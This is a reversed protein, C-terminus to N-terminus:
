ARKHTAKAFHAAHAADYAQRDSSIAPDYKKKIPIDRLETEPNIAWAERLRRQRDRDEEMRQEIERDSMATIGDPQNAPDETLDFGASPARQPTTMTDVSRVTEIRSLAERERIYANIQSLRSRSIINKKALRTFVERLPTINVAAIDNNPVARECVIMADRNLYTAYQPVDDRKAEECLLEWFYVLNARLNISGEDMQELICQHLDEAHERSRLAYAVARSQSSFSSTLKELCQKKFNLRIAFPDAM